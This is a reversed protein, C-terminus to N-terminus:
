VECATPVSFEVLQLGRLRYKFIQSDFQSFRDHTFAKQMLDIEAKWSLSSFGVAYYSICTKLHAAFAQRLRLTYHCLGDGYDVVSCAIGDLVSTALIAGRIAYGTGDGSIPDACFAADGVAIWTSGSLGVQGSLSKLIQPFASFVASSGILTFIQHKITQTQELIHSLVQVPKVLLSPVMVQLLARRDGLPVLFVWANAVTEIWYTKDECNNALTVAQSIVCRYGFSQHKESGFQQAITATRGSADIIWPFKQAIQRSSDPDTLQELYASSHDIFVLGKFEQLLRELFFESLKNGKIAANPQPVSMLARSEGWCVQRKYLLHFSDWFSDELRWIDQLLNCTVNNLLLTPSAQSTNSLLHVEWGRCALLRACTLGAIGSGIVLSRKM